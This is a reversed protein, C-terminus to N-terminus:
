PVPYRMPRGDLALILNDVAADAMASRATVTASGIHPLVTVGPCDLLPHTPPLPEPETTDLAAGGLAGRQLSATL